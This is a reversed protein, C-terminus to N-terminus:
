RANPGPHLRLESARFLFVGRRNMGKVALSLAGSGFKGLPISGAFADGDRQLPIEASIEAAGDCQQKLTIQLKTEDLRAPLDVDSVQVYLTEGVFFDTVDQDGKPHNSIGIRLIAPGAPELVSATASPGAAVGRGTEVSDSPTQMNGSRVESKSSVTTRLAVAAARATSPDALQPIEADPLARRYIRVEDILGKWFRNPATSYGNGIAVKRFDTSLKGRHEMAFTQKGNLWGRVTTGDWAVAVHYWTHAQLNTTFWGVYGAIPALGVVFHGNADEEFKFCTDWGAYSTSLPIRWNEVADANMWFSITGEPFKGLAPVLVYDSVGRFRYAGGIAGAADAAAGQVWGAHGNGSRDPLLGKGADDFDYCIALGDNLGAQGTTALACLALLSAFVKM